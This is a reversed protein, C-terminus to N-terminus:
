DSADPLALRFAFSSVKNEGEEQNVPPEVEDVEPSPEKEVQL